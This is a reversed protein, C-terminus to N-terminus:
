QCPTEIVPSTSSAIWASISIRMTSAVFFPRHGERAPNPESAKKAAPSVAIAIPQTGVPGHRHGVGGGAAAALKAGDGGAGRDADRDAMAEVALLAAAGGEGRLHAEGGSLHGHGALEFGVGGGAFVPRRVEVEAGIAACGDGEGVVGDGVGDGDCQTREVIGIKEHGVDRHPLLALVFPEFDGAVELM